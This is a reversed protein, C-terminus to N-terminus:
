PKILCFEVFPTHVLCSCSDEFFETDFFNTLAKYTLRVQYIGLKLGTFLWYGGGTGNVVMNFLEDKREVHAIAVFILSGEPVISHFDSESFGFWGTSGGGLKRGLIFDDATMLAPILTDFSCFRQNSLTNNTIKMKIQMSSSTNFIESCSINYIQKPVVTEFRIGDFQVANKDCDVPKILQLNVWPSTLLNAVSNQILKFDAAHRDFFLFEKKTNSYVFRIQYIGPQMDEFSWLYNIENSAQSFYSIATQLKLLNNHWSLKAILYCILSKKFPIGMGNYLNATTQSNAIKQPHLQQGNPALLEPILIDYIFPYLRLKDNNIAVNIQLYTNIGERSESIPLVIFNPEWVEIKVGNQEIGNSNNFEFSAM